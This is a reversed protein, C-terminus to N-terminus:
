VGKRNRQRRNWRGVDDYLWRDYKLCRTRVWDHVASVVMMVLLVFVVGMFAFGILEALARLFMMM